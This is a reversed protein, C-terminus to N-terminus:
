GDVCVEPDDAQEQWFDQAIATMALEGHTKAPVFSRWPGPVAAYSARAATTDSATGARHLRGERRWARCRGEAHKGALGATTRRARPGAPARPGRTAHPAQTTGCLGSVRRCM